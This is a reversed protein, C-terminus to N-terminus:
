VLDAITLVPFWMSVVIFGVFFSSCLLLVPEFLTALMSANCQICEKEYEEISELTMVLDGTQEGVAVLWRFTPSFLKQGGIAESLTKGEAVDQRAQVISERYCAWVADSECFSLADHVPTGMKLLVSLLKSFSRNNDHYVITGFYPIKLLIRGLVAIRRALSFFLFLGVLSGGFLLGLMLANSRIFCSLNVLAQTLPPLAGGLDHFIEAFTPIVKLLLFMIIGFAIFCVMIPYILLSVARNRRARRSVLEEDVLKLARALGGSKEGIELVGFLPMPLM